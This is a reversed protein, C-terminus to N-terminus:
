PACASTMALSFASKGWVAGQSQRCGLLLLTPRHTQHTPPLQKQEHLPTNAELSLLQITSHKNVHEKGSPELQFEWAQCELVELDLRGVVDELWRGNKGAAWESNRVYARQGRSAPGGLHRM